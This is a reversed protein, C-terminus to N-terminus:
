RRSTGPLHIEGGPEGLPFTYRNGSGEKIYGKPDGLLPSRGGLEM